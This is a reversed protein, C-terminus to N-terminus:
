RLGHGMKVYLSNTDATGTINGFPLAFPYMSMKWAVYPFTVQDQTTSHVNEYWWMDLFEHTKPDQANWGLFCTVYIGYEERGTIWFPMDNKELWWYEKFGNMTYNLYQESVNQVPQKQNQWVPSYYKEGKSAGVENLLKGKRMHEFTIANLGQDALFKVTSAAESSIIRVSADLWVVYRFCKLLSLKNWQLKFYKGLNFPHQNNTLSNRGVDKPITKWDDETFRVVQWVSDNRSLDPRDTFAFFKAKLSQTAPEKLTKEYRGFIATLFAIEIHGDLSACELKLLDGPLQRSRFVDNYVAPAYLAAFTLTLACFAIVLGSSFDILKM